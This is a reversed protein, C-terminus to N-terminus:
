VVWKALVEAAAVPINNSGMSCVMIKEGERLIGSTVKAGIRTVPKFEASELAMGAVSAQFQLWESKRLSAASLSKKSGVCAVILVPMRRLYKRLAEVYQEATENKVHKKLFRSKNFSSSHLFFTELNEVGNAGLVDAIKLVKANRGKARANLKVGGNIYKDTLWDAVAKYTINGAFEKAIQGHSQFELVGGPNNNLVALRRNGKRIPFYPEPLHTVDFEPSFESFHRKDARWTSYIQECLSKYEM